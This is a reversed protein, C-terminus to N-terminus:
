RGFLWKIKSMLGGQKDKVQKLVADLDPFRILSGAVDHLYPKVHLPKLQPLPDVIRIKKPDQPLSLCEALPPYSLGKKKEKPGILNSPAKELNVEWGNLQFDKASDAQILQLADLHKTARRATPDIDPTAKLTKDQAKMLHACHLLCKLRRVSSGLAMAEDFFKDKVVAVIALNTKAYEEAKRLDDCIVQCLFYAEPVHKDATYYQAKYYLMLLRYVREQMEYCVAKKADAFDKELNKVQKLKKLMTAFLM